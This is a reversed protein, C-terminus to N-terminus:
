VDSRVKFGTDCNVFIEHLDVVPLRVTADKFHCRKRTHTHADIVSSSNRDVLSCPGFNFFFFPSHVLRCPIPIFGLEWLGVHGFLLAAFSQLCLSSHLPSKMPENHPSSVSVCM